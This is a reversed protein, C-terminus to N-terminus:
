MEGSELPKSAKLALMKGAVGLYTVNFYKKKGM